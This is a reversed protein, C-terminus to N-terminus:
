SKGADASRLLSGQSGNSGNPKAKERQRARYLYMGVLSRPQQVALHEGRAALLDLVEQPDIQRRVGRERVLSEAIEMLKEKQGATLGKGDSVTPTVVDPTAPPTGLTFTGTSIAHGHAELPKDPYRVMLNQILMAQYGLNSRERNIETLLAKGLTGVSKGDAVARAMERVYDREPMPV